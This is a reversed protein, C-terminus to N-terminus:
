WFSERLWQEVRGLYGRGAPRLAGNAEVWALPAAAALALGVVGSFAPSPSSGSLRSAAGDLRPPGSLRVPRVLGASAFAELGMLESGGGTLVVRAARLRAVACTDLARRVHALFETAAITLARGVEARSIAPSGALGGWESVSILDHEHFAGPALSGYLTKIREAQALTLGLARALESTFHQGALPLSGAHIFHGEAFGALSVVGAGIDACVVGAEREELTTASFGSAFGTHLLRVPRLHCSEVVMCLNRLPGPEVTVAHHNAELRSGALGLPASVGPTTDLRYAIRNITLLAKGDRTAFAHAGDDLRALDTERVVGEPLEVHGNFIRSRPEGCSVGLVIESIRVGASSEAQSVAGAVAAQASRFDIVAGSAIGESRQHGLGLIRLQLSQDSRPDYGPSVAGVLCTIKQTGIDLAAVIKGPPPSVQAKRM